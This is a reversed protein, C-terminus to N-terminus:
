EDWLGGENTIEPYTRRFIVAGFDRNSKHRLPEYLLSWSKGGGAAGGYLAIDAPSQHFAWQPGDQPKLATGETNPPHTVATTPFTSTSRPSRAPITSSRGSSTAATRASRRSSWRSRGRSAPWSRGISPRSPTTWAPRAPMTPWRRSSRTASFSSGSRPAPSASVAPSRPWIGGSAPFLTLSGRSPFDAGPLLRLKTLKRPS